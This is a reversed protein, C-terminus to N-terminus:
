STSKNSSKIHNCRAAHLGPHTKTIPIDWLGDNKNRIGNMIVKNNKKVQLNKKDLTVVCNDDCLQGLSILSSSQLNPLVIANCATTSLHKSLPLQGQVM